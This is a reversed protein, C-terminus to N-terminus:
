GAPSARGSPGPSSATGSTTPRRRRGPAAEDRRRGDAHERDRLLRLAPGPRTREERGPGHDPHPLPPVQPLGGQGRRPHRGPSGGPHRPGGAPPQHRGPRRLRGGAAGEAGGHARHHPHRQPPLPHARGGGQLPLHAGGRAEQHADDGLGPPGGERDAQDGCLLDDVQTKASRTEVVPDLLGTPRLLQEVHEGGCRQLEREGPTASVYLVRDLRAEFEPFRLPRNDLASPLRFGHHVLNEKRARDGRYM